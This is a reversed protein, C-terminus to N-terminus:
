GKPPQDLELINGEPDRVYIILHPEAESGFNTIEGQLSGGLRLVTELTAELDAVNFALHGYGVANVPRAAGDITESYEM